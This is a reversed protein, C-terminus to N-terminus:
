WIMMEDAQKQLTERFDPHAVAILAEVRQTISKDRLKAVGYETVVYDVINRSITVVAGPSLIPQIKSVTGGKATSSLAIIGKGGKSRYAGYAFDYAGGSGSFQRYGISESCIQGTLDIQLATNISVMNDNQGIVFPDNVYRAPMIQIMPNDNLTAYLEDDGLAFAGITKGPHLTKRSNDVVGADMLKGMVSTIMETHIGLHKKSMLAEGVANPMGGIGLQICDGDDILGAVNAAIAREVDSIPISGITKAPYDVEVLFDAKEIPIQQTGNLRPINPNIEFIVLDAAEMCEQEHQQSCSLRVFGHEDMPTVAALFVTPRKARVLAGAAASLNAPVLSVRRVKHADRLGGGYFMSIMDIRGKLSNDMFFPYDENPIQSWVTVNEVRDAITHLQRLLMTAEHCYSGTAIVDGSKIKSLAEEVTILKSRYLEQKTM